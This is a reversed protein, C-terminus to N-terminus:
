RIAVSAPQCTAQAGSGIRAAATSQASVPSAKPTYGARCAACSSGIAASRVSYRRTADLPPPDRRGVRSASCKGGDRGEGTFPPLLCAANGMFPLPSLGREGHVPLPSLGRQGHVPSPSLRREGTVASPSLGREGPCARRAESSGGGGGAPSPRTPAFSAAYGDGGSRHCDLAPLFRSALREILAQL